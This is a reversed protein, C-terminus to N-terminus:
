AEEVEEVEDYKIGFEDNLFEEIAIVVPNPLKEYFKSIEIQEKNELIEEIADTTVSFEQLKQTLEEKLQLSIENSRKSIAILSEYINGNEHIFEKISRAKINPDINQVKSKLDSM